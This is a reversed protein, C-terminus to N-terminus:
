TMSTVSPKVDKVRLANLRQCFQDIFAIINRDICVNGLTITRINPCKTVLNKLRNCDDDTNNTFVFPQCNRRSYDDYHRRHYRNRSHYLDMQNQQINILYEWQKSVCKLRHKDEFTLYSLIHQCLDDGLRDMSDASFQSGIVRCTTM